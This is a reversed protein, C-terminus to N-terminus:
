NWLPANTCGDGIRVRESAFTSGAMAVLFDLLLHRRPMNSDHKTVLKLLTYGLLILRSKHFIERTIQDGSRAVFAGDRGPVAWAAGSALCGAELPRCPSIFGTMETSADAECIQRFFFM